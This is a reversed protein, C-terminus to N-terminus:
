CTPIASRSRVPRPTSYRHDNICREDYDPSDNDDPAANEDEAGDRMTRFTSRLSRFNRGWGWKAAETAVNVMIKTLM